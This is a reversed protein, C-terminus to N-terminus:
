GAYARAGRQNQLSRGLRLATDSPQSIGPVKGRVLQKWNAISTVAYCHQGNEMAETGNNPPTQAGLCGATIPIFCILLFRKM